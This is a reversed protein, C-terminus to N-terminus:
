DSTEGGDSSSDGGSEEDETKPHLPERPYEDTKDGDKFESIKVSKIMVTETVEGNDDAPIHTLRKVVDLGLYTHGFITNEGAAGFVGGVEYFKDFMAIMKERETEDERSKVGEKLENIAEETLSEADNNVIFWRADGSGAKESFSLLAGTFPWLDVSYENEILEDDSDRGIYNGKADEKGGTLFYTDDLVGKVLMNDYVGAEAKKIFNRVTNPAYQEYLVVRIEGYDTDIIAIKDGASPPKLQIYDMNMEKFDYSTMGNPPASSQRCGSFTFIAAAALVAAIIKKLIKTGKM